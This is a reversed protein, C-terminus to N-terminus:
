VLSFGVDGLGLEPRASVFASLRGAQASLGAADRGSVVWPFVAPVVVPSAPSSGVSGAPSDVPSDVGSVPPVVVTSDVLVAPSGSGTTGDGAAVEVDTNPDVELIVHANTGSIGFASVGSRRPGDTPWPTTQTLLQVAGTAWDVNPTPADVHLTRPAVGHRMAMVMKIVGAVGAAAQTHGVNSKVSGVWLPRDADRGQGYTALLAQ